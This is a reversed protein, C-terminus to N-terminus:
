VNKKTFADHATFLLLFMHIVIVGISFTRTMGPFIFAKQAIAYTDFNAFITYRFFDLSLGYYAIQTALGSSLYILLPAAIAIASNRFLSSLMFAITAAIMVKVFDLMYYSFVFLLGSHAMLNGNEVLLLPTNIDGAGFVIISFLVSLLYSIVSVVFCLSFVTIYKSWFIKYRKVPTILLFKITGNSFESAIMKGAVIIVFLAIFIFVNLSRKLALFHDGTYVYNSSTDAPNFGESKYIISSTNHEVKYKAILYDSEITDADEESYTEDAGMVKYHYYDTDNQSFTNLASYREMDDEPSINNNILDSYGDRLIKNGEETHQDASLNNLIITYYAKWDHNKLSDVLSNCLSEYKSKDEDSSIFSTGENNEYSIIASRYTYFSNLANSEWNEDDYFDEMTMHLEKALELEEIYAQDKDKVDVSKAWMLEEDISSYYAFDGSFRDSFKTYVPIAVIIILLLVLFFYTSKKHFLKGYENKILNLLRAVEKLIQLKWLHM